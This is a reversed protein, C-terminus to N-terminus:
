AWFAGWDGARSRPEIAEAAVSGPSSRPSTATASRCASSWRRVRRRSASGMWRERTGPSPAGIYSARTEHVRSSLEGGMEAREAQGGAVDHHHVRRDAGDPLDGATGVLNMERDLVDDGLIACQDHVRATRLVDVLDSASIECGLLLGLKDLLQWWEVGLGRARGPIVAGQDLEEARVGARPDVAVRRSEDDPARPCVVQEGLLRPVVRKAGARDELSQDSEVALDQEEAGIVVGHCEEMVGLVDHVNGVLPDDAELHRDHCAALAYPAVHGLEVGRAARMGVPRWPKERLNHVLVEGRCSVGAPTDPVRVRM